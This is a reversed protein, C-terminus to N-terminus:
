RLDAGDSAACAVTGVSFNGEVLLATEFLLFDDLVCSLPVVFDSPDVHVDYGPFVAGSPPPDCGAAGKPTPRPRPPTAFFCDSRRSRHSRHTAAAATAWVHLFRGFTKLPAARRRHASM